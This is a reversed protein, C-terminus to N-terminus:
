VKPFWTVEGVPLRTPLTLYPRLEWLQLESVTEKDIMLAIRHGVHEMFCFRWHRAPEDYACQGAELRIGDKGGFVTSFGSLPLSLGAGRAKIYAEKLTWISLARDLKEQGHLIELQAIEPPSFVDPALEVINGARDYPEVDVGVEAGQAILCVVLGLSNSLNFRLGCDPETTPKGHMNSQFRWAQPALPRYQSLATRVLTRTALYERRHRDFRLAQWRAREDESLLLASTQTIAESRFDEPYACWLYLSEKNM